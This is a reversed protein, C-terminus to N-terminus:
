VIAPNSTYKPSTMTHTAAVASHPATHRKRFRSAAQSLVIRAPTKTAPTAATNTAASDRWSPPKAAIPGANEGSPPCKMCTIWMRAMIGHANTPKSAITWEEASNLNGTRRVNPIRRAAIASEADTYRRSARSGTTDSGSPYAFQRSYMSSRGFRLPISAIGTNAADLLASPAAPFDTIPPAISAACSVPMKPVRIAELRSICAIDFPPAIGPQNPRRLRSPAGAFATSKTVHTENAIGNRPRM